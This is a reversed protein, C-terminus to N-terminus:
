AEQPAPAAPSDNAAPASAAGVAEDAAPKSARAVVALQMQLREILVDKRMLQLAQWAILANFEKVMRDDM